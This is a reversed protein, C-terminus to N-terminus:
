ISISKNPIQQVIRLLQEEFSITHLAYQYHIDFMLAEVLEDDTNGM